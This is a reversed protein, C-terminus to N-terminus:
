ISVDAFGDVGVMPCWLHPCINLKMSPFIGLLYEEFISSFLMAMLNASFFLILLSVM